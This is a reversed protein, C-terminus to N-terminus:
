PRLEVSLDFKEFREGLWQVGVGIEGYLTILAFSLGLVSAVPINILWRFLLFVLGAGIAAPLLAVIMALVLAAFFLIRQGMVEIGPSRDHVTQMWAPFLVVGVNMVLVEIACLFPVVIAIALTAVIHLNPTLWPMKSSDFTLSAALLMLWILMTIVVVPALMEGFVVQWGRLPYTKLLDANVIDTRLDQRALMPGFVLTYAAFIMSGISVVTRLVEHEGRTIWTCGVIIIAAAILATRGRLYEATSLLNKWLFALEPRRVRSLDFPSTRAKPASANLRMNGSRMAAVRAARKEAKAISAEEFSVESRLVWAYHAVYVLLAPGLAKAFYAFNPALVPQIVWKAPLLLWSLPAVSLLSAVYQALGAAGDLDEANPASWQSWTWMAGGGIVVVIIFLTTLQRRLSTVGTDLLKTIVFSSGIAHLSITGLAIWWGIIRIFADGPFFLSGRSLLGFILASVLTQLQLNLLRYHILTGRKVPAAFLFAIEPETFTLAARARPFIWYLLIFILFLLAGINLSIPLQDFAGQVTQESSSGRNSHLRRLFFFYIYAGGVIAGFLYKPQKLRKIRSLLANRLSTVRLYFLAGAIGSM